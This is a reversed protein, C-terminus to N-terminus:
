ITFLKRRDVVTSSVSKWTWINDSLTTGLWSAIYMSYRCDLCFVNRDNISLNGTMKLSISITIEMSYQLVPFKRGCAIRMCSIKASIRSFKRCAFIQQEVTLLTPVYGQDLTTFKGLCKIDDRLLSPNMIAIGHSKVFKELSAWFILEFNGRAGLFYFLM